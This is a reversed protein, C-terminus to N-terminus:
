KRKSIEDVLTAELMRMLRDEKDNLEHDFGVIHLIGHIALHILEDNVSINFESAQRKAVDKCIIIDGLEVDPLIFERSRKKRLDEYFPFTLVDTPYDKKRYERNLSQIRRKGCLTLNIVFNNERDFSPFKNHNFFLDHFIPLATELLKCFGLDAFDTTNQLLITIKESNIQQHRM